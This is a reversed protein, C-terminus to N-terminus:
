ILAIKKIDRDIVSGFSKVTDYYLMWRTYVYCMGGESDEIIVCVYCM